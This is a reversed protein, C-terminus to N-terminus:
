FTNINAQIHIYRIRMHVTDHKYQAQIIDTNRSCFCTDQRYRTLIISSNQAPKQAAAPPKQAPEQAIADRRRQRMATVDGDCRRMADAGCRTAARFAPSKMLDCEGINCGVRQVRVSSTSGSCRTRPSADILVCTSTMTSLTHSSSGAFTILPREATCRGVPLLSSFCLV